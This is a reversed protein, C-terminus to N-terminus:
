TNLPMLRSIDCAQPNRPSPAATRHLGTSRRGDQSLDEIVQGRMVLDAYALVATKVNGDHDEWAVEVSWHKGILTRQVSCVWAKVTTLQKPNEGETNFVGSANVDFGPPIFNSSFTARVPIAM